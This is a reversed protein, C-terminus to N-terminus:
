YAPVAQRSLDRNVENRIEQLTIPICGYREIQLGAAVTALAAAVQWEGGVALICGLVAIFQDGAGTVDHVDRPRSQIPHTVGHIDCLECGDQDLKVVATLTNLENQIEGATRGSAEERNPIICGVHEYKGWRGCKPPDVIVLAGTDKCARAVMETMVGKAYDAILIVDPPNETTGSIINAIQHALDESVPTTTESDVRGLQQRHRGSAVGCIREKTTTVRNPDVITLCCVGNQTLMEYLREGNRDAGVTGLLVTEAGLAACMAAVAAAGGPRYENRPNLLVPVPAEPSIRTADGIRYHDLMIDGVVLVRPRECNLRDLLEAQSMTIM